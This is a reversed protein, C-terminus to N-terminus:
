GNRELWEGESSSLFRHGCLYESSTTRGEGCWACHVLGCAGCQSAEREEEPEDVLPEGCQTCIWDGTLRAGAEAEPRETAGSAQTTTMTTRWIAAEGDREVDECGGLASPSCMAEVM